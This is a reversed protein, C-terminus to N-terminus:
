ISAFNYQALQGTSILSAQPLLTSRSIQRQRDRELSLLRLALVQPNQELALQVAEKLTLAISQAPPAPNAQALGDECFAVVFLLFYLIGTAIRLPISPSTRTGM